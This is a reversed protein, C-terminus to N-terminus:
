THLNLNNNLLVEENVAVTNRMESAETIAGSAHSEGYKPTPRYAALNRAANLDRDIKLGCTECNYTRESLKLKDKVAGCCSCTKSSPFYRNALVVEKGMWDGKYLLQRKIEGFSVDALQKSLGKHKYMSAVDLGEIVVKDYKKLIATTTQNIM